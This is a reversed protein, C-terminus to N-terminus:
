GSVKLVLIGPTIIQPGWLDLLNIYCSELWMSSMWNKAFVWAVGCWISCFWAITPMALCTLFFHIFLACFILFIFIDRYAHEYLALIPFACFLSICKALTWDDFVWFVEFFFLTQFFWYSVYTSFIFTKQASLCCYKHLM